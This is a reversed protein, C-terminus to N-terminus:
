AAGCYSFGTLIERVAAVCSPCSNQGISASFSVADDSFSTLCLASSRYSGGLSPCSYSPRAKLALKFVQASLASEFLSPDIAASLVAGILKYSSRQDSEAFGVLASGSSSVIQRPDILIGFSNLPFSGYVSGLVNYNGRVIQSDPSEILRRFDPNNRISPLPNKSLDCVDVEISFRSFSAAADRAADRQPQSLKPHLLIAIPARILSM